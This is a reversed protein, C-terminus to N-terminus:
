ENYEKGEVLRKLGKKDGKNILQRYKDKDDKSASKLFDSLKKFSLENIFLDSWERKEELEVDTPYKINEKKFLMRGINTSPVECEFVFPVNQKKVYQSYAQSIKNLTLGKGIQFMNGSKEIINIEGDISLVSGDQDFKKTLEKILDIFEDQSVDNPRVVLYSREIVDILKNKPCDEYDVDTLQCEEWHGILQYVGMKRQNFENRLQRNRKINEKKDYKDRYATIVAFDNDKVKSIVRSLGAETLLNNNPIDDISSENLYEKFKM